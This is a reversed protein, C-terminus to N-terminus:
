GEIIENEAPNFKLEEMSYRIVVREYAAGMLADYSRVISMQDTIVASVAIEAAGRAATVLKAQLAVPLDDWPIPPRKYFATLHPSLYRWLEQAIYRPLEEDVGPLQM